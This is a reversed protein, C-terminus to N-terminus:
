NSLFRCDKTGYKRCSATHTMKHLQNKMALKDANKLFENWPDHDVEMIQGADKHEPFNLSECFLSDLYKKLSDRFLDSQLRDVYKQGGPIDTLWILIHLHLTGRSQTEIMGFYSGVKGFISREKKRSDTKFLKELVTTIVIHFHEVAAVPDECVLKIRELSTMEQAEVASKGSLVAVLPDSLDNPNLTM